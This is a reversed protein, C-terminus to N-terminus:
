RGKKNFDVHLISRVLDTLNSPKSGKGQAGYIRAPESCTDDVRLSVKIKSDFLQRKLWILPRM